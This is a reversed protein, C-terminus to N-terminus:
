DIAPNRGWTLVTNQNELYRPNLNAAKRIHAYFQQRLTDPNFYKNKAQLAHQALKKRLGPSHRLDTLKAILENEEDTTLVVATGPNALGWKVGTTYPPGLIVVPMGLSLYEPLKSPFHTKYLAAHDNQEFSYPLVVADCEAQIRQWTQSPHRAFGCFAVTDTVPFSAHTDQYIRLKVRAKELAPLIRRLQDGYGYALGGAYGITLYGDQQLSESEEPSRPIIDESPNPYLVEGSSGYLDQLYEAMEKSICLRSSAYAYVEKNIQWKRQRAFPYVRDFVEPNDHVILLLPLQHAKAFRYAQVFFAQSQMVSVVVDPTFGKLLGDIEPRPLLGFVRLTRAAEAFRTKMLRELLPTFVEYRCALTSAEPQTAPGVVLLKGAPYQSFLRYLLICGAFVSQPVEESLVLLNPYSPQEPLM